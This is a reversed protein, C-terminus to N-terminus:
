ELIRVKLGRWQDIQLEGWGNKKTWDARYPWPWASSIVEYEGENVPGLDFPFWETKLNEIDDTTFTTM